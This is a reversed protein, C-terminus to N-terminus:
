PAEKHVISPGNEEYQKKSIWMTQFTGLSALISGGIWTSFKAVQQDLQLQGSSFQSKVRMNPARAALEKEFRKPLGNFLTTGGTLITHAFLDKRLDSDCRMISEFAMHQLGTTNELIEGIPDSPSPQNQQQESINVQPQQNGALISSPKFLTEPISYKEHGISVVVGDNMEYNLKPTTEYDTFPSETVRFLNDKEKCDNVVSMVAYQRYSETVNPFYPEHIKFKGQALKERKILYNPKIPIGRLKELLSLINNSIADGAYFNRVIGKTLVYGDVVPTVCTGGAGCEVVLATSKANAFASLVPSKSFFIAPCNFKEFLLTAMKERNLRSNYSPEAMLMPHENPNIGLREVLAYQIINETIEWDDILGTQMNFPSEIEMYERPFSLAQTGVFYEKKKQQKQNETTDDSTDMTKENNYIVGVSSPFVAKPSDEGAFGAKSTKTGIDMVVAGIEDGGTFLSEITLGIIL